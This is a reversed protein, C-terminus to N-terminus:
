VVRTSGQGWATAGPLPGLVIVQVAYAQLRGQEKGREQKLAAVVVAAGYVSSNIYVISKHNLFGGQCM